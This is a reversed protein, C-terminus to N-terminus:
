PVSQINHIKENKWLTWCVIFVWSINTSSFKDDPVGNLQKPVQAQCWLSFSILVHVIKHSTSFLVQNEHFAANNRGTSSSEPSKEKEFRQIFILPWFLSLKSVSDFESKDLNKLTFSVCVALFIKLKKPSFFNSLFNMWICLILNHLSSSHILILKLAM